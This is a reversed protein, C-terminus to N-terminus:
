GAGGGPQEGAAAELLSGATGQPAPPFFRDLLVAVQPPYVGAMVSARPEPLNAHQARWAGHLAAAQSLERGFVDLMDAVRYWAGPTRPLAAIAHALRTLGEAARVRHERIAATAVHPDEGRSRVAQEAANLPNDVLFGLTARLAVVCGAGVRAGARPALGANMGDRVAGAFGACVRGAAEIGAPQWLPGWLDAHAAALLYPELDLSPFAGAISALLRHMPMGAAYLLFPRRGYLSAPEDGQASAVRAGPPPYLGDWRVLPETVPLPSFVDPAARGAPAGSAAEHSPALAPVRDLWAVAGEGGRLFVVQVGAGERVASLWLALDGAAAARAWAELWAPPAAVAQLGAGVDVPAPAPVVVGRAGAAHYAGAFGRPYGLGPPLVIDAPVGPFLEALLARNAQVERGAEAPTLYAAHANHAHTLLLAVRRDGVAQHLAGIPGARWAQNEAAVAVPAGAREALALVAAFAGRAHAAAEAPAGLLAEAPASVHVAFAIRTAAM